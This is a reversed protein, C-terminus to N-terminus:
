SGFKKKQIFTMYHPESDTLVTKEDENLCIKSIDAMKTFIYIRFCGFEAIGTTLLVKRFIIRENRM